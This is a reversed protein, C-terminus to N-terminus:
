FDDNDGLIARIGWWNTLDVHRLFIRKFQHLGQTLLPYLSEDAPGQAGFDQRVAFADSQFDDMSNGTVNFFDQPSIAFPFQVLGSVPKRSAAFLTPVPAAPSATISPISSVFLFLLDRSVFCGAVAFTRAPRLTKTDARLTSGLRPMLPSDWAGLSMAGFTVTYHDSFLRVKRVLAELLRLGIAGGDRLLELRGRLHFGLFKLMILPRHM